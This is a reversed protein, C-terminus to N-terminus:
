ESHLRLTSPARAGDPRTWRPPLAWWARLRGVAGLGAGLQARVARRQKATPLQAADAFRIMRLARVYAAADASGRFRHELASLTVHDSLPRRCRRLALELESVLEDADPSALMRRSAFLALAALLVLGALVGAILPAPSSAPKRPASGGSPRPAPNQPATRVPARPPAGVSGRILPLPVHGGRAPAAAPTPDFRVWGYRPFWAEVWAHADLDTVVWERRSSDYSGPTFGTAVRAPVGGMRLLLAMAGAFQQCYGVKDRFLFTQLPYTSPPPSENYAYGHKLYSMVGLVFAYPTLAHSALRHALRYAEAYPSDALASAADANVIALDQPPEQSGFPAFLIPQPPLGAQPLEIALDRQLGAATDDTAAHALQAPTPNPSYTTVRYSDGPQLQDLTMWTGPADGQLPAQPLRQPAQAFGAAIVQTTQMGRLTVQITQTWRALSEPAPEPPPGVYDSYGSAWRSGDFLELDESKWYDAHAARVDLVERGSRPWNLPGYRQAWDFTEVNGPSLTGVLANYNLWPSRQDLAPAAVMAAGGALGAVGVALVTDSRPLREGWVFAALLVFLILGHLYVLDPRALASPVVALVVLPLAAAASRLEGLPRPAFALMLAADLLLIGAGLVNVVRVWDNIGTYPVLARPLASLGQGIANAIVAIRVHVVWGLPVGALVFLLPVAAIALVIAPSRGRRGAAAGMGGLAVALALLGLLRWIAPPSLLTGWRLTAYLALAAFTALRVLPRETPQRDSRSRADRLRPADLGAVQAATTM